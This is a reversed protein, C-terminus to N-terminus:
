KARGSIGGSREDNKKGVSLWKTREIESFHETAYRLMTRPMVLVNKELFLELEKRSVRKGAERLMWGAAKQMLDEKDDFLKEALRFVLSADKHIMFALSAVMAVRREWLKGSEIMRDLIETPKGLLYAGVIKHASIDVLDWNNVRDLHALYFDFIKKRVKESGSRFRDILIFLGILREEHYRSALLTDIGVFSLAGHRKAIIRAQPAALGLFVDGEGYQGKGTKFFSASM